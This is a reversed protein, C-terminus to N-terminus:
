SVASRSFEQLCNGPLRNQAKKKGWDDELIATKNATMSSEQTVPYCAETYSQKEQKTYKSHTLKRAIKGTVPAIGATRLPLYGSTPITNKSFINHHM